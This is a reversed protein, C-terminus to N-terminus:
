TVNALGDELAGEDEVKQAAEGLDVRRDGVVDGPLLGEGEGGSAVLKEELFQPQLIVLLYTSGRREESSGGERSTALLLLLLVVPAGVALLAALLGGGRAAV